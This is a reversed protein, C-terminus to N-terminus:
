AFGTFGSATTSTSYLLVARVPLTEGAVVDPIIVVEGGITKVSVDGATGVRIARTVFRLLATDSATIAWAHEAPEGQGQGIVDFPVTAASAM